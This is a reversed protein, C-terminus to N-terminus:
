PKDTGNGPKESEEKQKSDPRRPALADKITKFPHLILRTPGYFPEVKPSQLSGTIRYELAKTLPSFLISLPRGLLWV